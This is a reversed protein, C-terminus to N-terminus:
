GERRPPSREPHGYALSLHPFYRFGQIWRISAAGFFLISLALLVWAASSSGVSLFFGGPLGFLVCFLMWLGGAAYVYAACLSRRSNDDGDPWASEYRAFFRDYTAFARRQEWRTLRRIEDRGPPDTANVGPGGM